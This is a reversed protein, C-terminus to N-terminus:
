LIDSLVDEIEGIFDKESIEYGELFEGLGFQNKIRKFIMKSINEHDYGKIETDDLHQIKGRAQGTTYHVNSNSDIFGTDGAKVQLKNDNFASEIEFDQSFGIGEGIKYKNM